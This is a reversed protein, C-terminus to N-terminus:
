ANPFSSYGRPVGTIITVAQKHVQTPVSKPSPSATGKVLQGHQALCTLCGSPGEGDQGSSLIM